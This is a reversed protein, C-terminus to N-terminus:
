CNMNLMKINEEQRKLVGKLTKKEKSVEEKVKMTSKLESSVHELKNELARKEGNLEKVASELKTVKVQM